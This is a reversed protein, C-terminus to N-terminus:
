FKSKSEDTSTVTTAFQNNPNVRELISNFEEMQGAIREDNAEDPLKLASNRYQRLEQLSSQSSQNVCDLINPLVVQCGNLVKANEEKRTAYANEQDPYFNSKYSAPDFKLDIRPIKIEFKNNIISAYDKMLDANTHQVNHAVNAVFTGSSTPLANCIYQQDSSNSTYTGNSGAPNSVVSYREVIEGNSLPVTSASLRLKPIRVTPVQTNISAYHNPMKGSQPKNTTYGYTKPSNTYSVTENTSLPMQVQIQTVNAPQSYYHMSNYAKSVNPNASGQMLLAKLTGGDNQMKPPSYNPMTQQVTVMNPPSVYNTFDSLAAPMKPPSMYNTIDSQTVIKPQSVYNTGPQSVTQTGYAIQNDGYTQEAAKTQTGTTRQYQLVSPMQSASKASSIPLESKSNNCYVNSNMVYSAPEVNVRTEVGSQQSFVPGLLSDKNLVQELTLAAQTNKRPRGRSRKSTSAVTRNRPAPVNKLEPHEDAIARYADLIRDVKNVNEKPPTRPFTAYLENAGANQNVQPVVAVMTTKGNAAQQHTNRANVLQGNVMSVKKSQRKKKTTRVLTIPGCQPTTQADAVVLKSVTSFTMPTTVPPKRIPSTYTRSNPYNPLQEIVFNLLAQSIDSKTDNFGSSPDTRNETEAQSAKSPSSKQANTNPTVYPGDMQSLLNEISAFQEDSVQSMKPIMQPPSPTGPVIPINELGAFSRNLFRWADEPKIGYNSCSSYLGNAGLSKLTNPQNLNPLQVMCDKATDEDIHGNKPKSGYKRKFLDDNALLTAYTGNTFTGNGLYSENVNKPRNAVKPQKPEGKPKRKAANRERTAGTRRKEPKPKVVTQPEPTVTANTVPQSQNDSPIPIENNNPMLTENLIVDYVNFRPSVPPIEVSELQKFSDELISNLEEAEKATKEDIVNQSGDDMSLTKLGAIRFQRLAKLSNPDSQNKIDNLIDEDTLDNKKKSSNRRATPDNADRTKPKRGRKKKARPEESDSSLIKKRKKHSIIIEDDSDFSSLGSRRTSSYEEESEEPSYLYQEYGKEIGYCEDYNIPKDKFQNYDLNLHNLVVDDFSKKEFYELYQECNSRLEDWSLDWSLSDNRQYRLLSNLDECINNELKLNEVEAIYAPALSRKLDVQKAIISSDIEKKVEENAVGMSQFIENLESTDHVKDAEPVMETIPSPAPQDQPPLESSESEEISNSLKEVFAEIIQLCERSPTLSFSTLLCEKCINKCENFLESMLLFGKSLQSYTDKLKDRQEVRFLEIENM